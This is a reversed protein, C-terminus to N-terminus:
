EEDEEEISELTSKFKEMRLSPVYEVVEESESEDQDQKDTRCAEPDETKPLDNIIDNLVQDLADLLALDLVNSFLMANPPGEERPPADTPPNEDTQIGKDEKGKNKKELDQQNEQQNEQDM